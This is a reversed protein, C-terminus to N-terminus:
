DVREELHQCVWLGRGGPHDLLNGPEVELQHAASRTRRRAAAAGPAHAAARRARRRSGRLGPATFIVSTVSVSKPQRSMGGVCYPRCVPRKPPSLWSPRTVTLVSAPTSPWANRPEA